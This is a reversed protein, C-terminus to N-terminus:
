LFHEEKLILLGEKDYKSSFVGKILGGLSPREAKDAAEEIMDEANARTLPIGDEELKDVRQCLALLSKGTVSCDIESAYQVAYDTFEEIGLEEDDDVPETAEYEQQNYEEDDEYIEDYLEEDPQGDQYDEEESYEDEVYEPEEYEDSACPEDDPEQFEEPEGNEGGVEEEDSDDPKEEPEKGSVAERSDEPDPQPEPEEEERVDAEARIDSESETKVGSEPEQESKREAEQKSETELHPVAKPEPTEQVPAPKQEEEPESKSKPEEQCDTEEQVWKEPKTAQVPKKADKGSNICQFLNIFGPNQQHLDEIRSPNDILVVIMGTEDRELLMQLEELDRQTLDGAGEVILDKGALKDSVNIIGKKSLKSGSIKIVSNSVGTEQHVKKLAKVATEFGERATKAEIIMHHPTYSRNYRPREEEARPRLVRINNKGRFVRTQSIAPEPETYEETSIRSMEAALEKEAAAQHLNAMMEEDMVYPGAAPYGGQSQAYGYGKADYGTAREQVEEGAQASELWSGSDYPANTTEYVTDGAYDGEVGYGANDGYSGEDDYGAESEYSRGNEYINNVSHNGGNGGYGGQPAYTNGAYGNFGDYGGDNGYTKGASYDQSDEYGNGANYNGDTGYPNGRNYEPNDAYQEQTRYGDAARGYNMGGYAFEGQNDANRESGFSVDARTGYGSEPGYGPDARYGTGSDYDAEAGYANGTNHGAGFDYGSEAGGYRQSDYGNGADYGTGVGYGSGSGYGAGAEYNNEVGYGDAAATGYGTGAGYGNGSGTEAGYSSEVGYGPGAGYGGAAATGYGTGAGYGNGSGAEAGYGNEVGYSSGAGYGDATATGYAAGAGYGNGSGSETGYGNEAGYDPGAGYRDAVGAGYGTGAGYRTDAGHSGPGIGYNNAANQLSGAYSTVGATQVAASNYGIYGSSRIQEPKRQHSNSPAYQQKLKTAKEVYTGIGFLLVMKDCLKICDDTRGAMAYLEALEYMWKEDLETNIYRELAQILQDASAKKGKLILYRLIHQRTDEPALQCFERYYDEAERVSGEKLALETLKYLFRKGIPAREFALLLVEKAEQYEGNKEYVQSITSLLNANRVRRWDITDAIKMATAFDEKNVMKKIQEVKINFEYKDM